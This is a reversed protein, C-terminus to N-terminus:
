DKNKIRHNYHYTLLDNFYYFPISQSILTVEKDANQDNNFTPLDIILTHISNANKNNSVSPIKGSVFVVKGGNERIKCIVKELHTSTGYKTYFIFLDSSQVNEIRQNITDWDSDLLNGSIKNSYFFNELAIAPGKLIGEWYCIFVRNSDDILKLTKVLDKKNILAYNQKILNTYAQFVSEDDVPIESSSNDVDNALAISFDRYGDIGMKKLLTYIASYGTGVEHSLRSIKMNTNVIMKSNKKIYLIIEKERNTLRIEDLTALKGFFSHM